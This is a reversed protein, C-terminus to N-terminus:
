AQGPLAVRRRMANGMGAVVKQMLSPANVFGLIRNALVLAGM